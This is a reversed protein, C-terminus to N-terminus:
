GHPLHPLSRSRVPMSLSRSTSLAPSRSSRAAWLSRARPPRVRIPWRAPAPLRVPASVYAVDRRDACSGDPMCAGSEVCDDHGACAHCARDVGCLPSRGSCADVHDPALCQVCMEDVPDCVATPPLCDADSACGAADPQPCRDLDEPHARCYAPNPRTCGGQSALAALLASRALRAIQNCRRAVTAVRM